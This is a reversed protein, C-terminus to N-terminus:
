ETSTFPHEAYVSYSSFLAGGRQLFVLCKPNPPVQCCLETSPFAFGYPVLVRGADCNSIELCHYKEHKQLGAAEVLNGWPCSRCLMNREEQVHSTAPAQRPATSDPNAAHLPPIHSHLIMTLYCLKGEFLQSQFSVSSSFKPIPPVM